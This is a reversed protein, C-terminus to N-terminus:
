LCVKNLLSMVDILGENSESLARRVIHSSKEVMKELFDHPLRTNERLIKKDKDENLNKETEYSEDKEINKYNGDPLFFM